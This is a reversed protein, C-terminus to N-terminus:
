NKDGFITGFGSQKSTISFKPSNDEVDKASFKVKSIVSKQKKDYAKKIESRDIYYRFGAPYNLKMDHDIVYQLAFLLYDSSVGRNLYENLIKNLESYRVTNSIHSVWISRFLQMDKMEQFCNEHYYKTGDKIYKETSLDIRKGHRCQLYQCVRQTNREAM